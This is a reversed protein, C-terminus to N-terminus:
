SRINHRSIHKVLGQAESVPLPKQCALRKDRKAVEANKYDLQTLDARGCGDAAANFRHPPVTIPLSECFAVRLSHM